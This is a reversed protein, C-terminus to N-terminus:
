TAAKVLFPDRRGPSRSKRSAHQDHHNRRGPGQRGQVAQRIDNFPSVTTTRRHAACRRQGAGRRPRVAINQTHFPEARYRHRSGPRRRTCCRATPSCAAALAAILLAKMIIVRPPPPEARGDSTAAVPGRRPFLLDRDRCRDDPLVAAHGHARDWTVERRTPGQPVPPNFGPRRSRRMEVLVIFIGFWILDSGAAQVTLAAVRCHDAGGDLHRGPLLGPHHLVRDAAAHPQVAVPAARRYFEALHRPLSSAWPTLFAPGRILGIMCYARPM